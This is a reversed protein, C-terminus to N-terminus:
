AERNGTGAPTPFRIIKSVEEGHTSPDEDSEGSPGGLRIEQLTRAIHRSEALQRETGHIDEKVIDFITPYKEQIVAVIEAAIWWVEFQAHNEYRQKLFKIWNLLNGSMFFSTITSVPLVLRAQERAVGSRLLSKYTEDARRIDNSMTHLLGAPIDSDGDLAVGQKNQQDQTYLVRPIYYGLDLESYRGSMENYSFTRHRMIQRATFLPCEIKFTLMVHEFPSTHGNAWLYRLLKEDTAKPKQGGISVRAADVVRQEDGMSEVLTASGPDCTIRPIFAIKDSM